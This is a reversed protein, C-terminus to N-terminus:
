RRMVVGKSAIVEVRDGEDLREETSHVDLLIPVGEIRELIRTDYNSSAVLLAGADRYADLLSAELKFVVVIDDATIEQADDETRVFRVTGTARGNTYPQGRVPADGITSIRLTNTSGEVGVPTGAVTVISDGEEACGDWLALEEARTFLGEISDMGEDHVPRVGWLMACQTVTRANRSAVVIPVDPRYASLNRATHGSESYALVCSANVNYLSGVAAHCVSTTVSNRSHFPLRSFWEQYDFDEEAQMVVQAMTEVARVPYGGVATEGSLMVCTTSQEVAQYIDGVEARTPTPSQEMSALMETATIVIKRSQQANKIIRKQIAPVNSLEVEVGLDGRAVMLGDSLDLIEGVKEVGEQNEIKSILKIDKRGLDDIFRRATVVNTANRVFSLAVYDIDHAAGFRLDDKDQETLIPLSINVAPVNVGRRGELVGGTKVDCSVTKGEVDTVCLEIKGDDILLEDGVSIDESLGEYTLYITSADTRPESAGAADCVVDVSVGQELKVPSAVDGTRIEPGRTDVMIAVPKSVRDRAETVNDIIDTHGDHSGHSFNIRAVDM